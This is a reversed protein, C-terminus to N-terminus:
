SAKLLTTAPDEEEDLSTLDVSRHKLFHKILKVLDKNNHGIDGNTRTSLERVRTDVEDQSRCYILNCQAEGGFKRTLESLTNKDSLLNTLTRVKLSKGLLSKKTYVFGVYFGQHAQQDVLKTIFQPYRTLGMIHSPVPQPIYFCRTYLICPLTTKQERTM